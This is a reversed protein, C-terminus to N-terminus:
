VLFSFILLFLGFLLFNIISFYRLFPGKAEPDYVTFVKYGILNALSAILTGMGGINTGLVLARAHETFPALLLAAPVNSIGQSVLASIWLTTRTEKVGRRLVDSIWQNEALNGVILFFCVFTLLLFYDVQKMTKPFPILVLIVAVAVWIGSTLLNTVYALMIGLGIVPGIKWEIKQIDTAVQNTFSENPVFYSLSVLSVISIILFPFVWMLFTPISIAYYSFLFINQPNGTPFVSSGLNAALIILVTGKITEKKSLSHTAILLFVPLLTLIAVDNTLIMSAVFSLGVLAQVLQRKTKACVTVSDALRKLVGMAKLAEIALMLGFLALIVKTDIFSPSFRGFLCSIIAGILSITFTLDKTFFQRLKTKLFAM